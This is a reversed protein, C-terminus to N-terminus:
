KLRDLLTARQQPDSVKEALLRAAAKDNDNLKHSNNIFHVLLADGAGAERYHLALAAAETFNLGTGNELSVGLAQGTAADVEQPAVSAATRRLEDLAKVDPKEGYFKFGLNQALASREGPTPKISDIFGAAKSLDENAKSGAIMRIRYFQENQPLHSRILEVAQRAQEYDLTGTLYSLPIALLRESEPLSDLRTAAAAPDTKVLQYLIDREFSVRLPHPKDLSKADLKGDAVQQDLWVLAASPNQEIWQRFVFAVSQIDNHSWAEIEAQFREFTKPFDKLLSLKLLHNALSLADKDTAALTLM